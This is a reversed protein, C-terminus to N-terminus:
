GGGSPSQFTYLWVSYPVTFHKEVAFLRLYGLWLSSWAVLATVGSATKNVQQV